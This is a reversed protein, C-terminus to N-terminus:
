QSELTTSEEYVQVAYLEAVSAWFRTFLLTLEDLERQSPSIGKAALRRKVFHSSLLVDGRRASKVSTAHCQALVDRTSLRTRAM